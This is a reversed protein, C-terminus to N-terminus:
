FVRNIFRTLLDCRFAAESLRKRGIDSPQDLAIGFTADGTFISREGAGTFCGALPCLFADLTRGTPLGFDLVLPRSM